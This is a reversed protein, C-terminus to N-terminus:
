ASSNKLPGTAAMELPLTIKFVCGRGPFNEVGVSGHNLNIARLAITLGLGLGSRNSSQQEFPKFISELKDPPLGGCQDAVEINVSEASSRSQIRVIGGTVTYKLANQVLNYLASHFLQLDSKLMLDPDIKIEIKQNKLRCVDELSLAIQDVIALLCFTEAHIKPEVRLRVENLSRDILIELRKLSNELVSGTSGGIAVTGQKILQFSTMASSLANRLEHALFGLREVEAANANLNQQSQYGTVAGAIGFDLGVVKNKEANMKNKMNKM